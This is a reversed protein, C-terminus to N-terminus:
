EGSGIEIDMIEGQLETASCKQEDGDHWKLDCDKCGVSNCTGVIVNKLRVQLEDLRSM